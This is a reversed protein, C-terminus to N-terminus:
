LSIHDEVKQGARPAEGEGLHQIRQV